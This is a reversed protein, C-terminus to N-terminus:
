EPHDAAAGGTNLTDDSRRTPWLALGSVVVLATLSVAIGPRLGPSRYRLTVSRDGPAVLVGLFARDVAVVDAREGDIHASWGPAYRQDLVVLRPAALDAPVAVRLEGPHPSAVELAEPACARTCALGDVIAPDDVAVADAPLATLQDAVAGRDESVPVARAVLRAAGVWRPNEYLAITGDVAVPGDWGPVLDGVHRGETEVLAWRVGLRAAVDLDLPAALQARITLDENFPRGTLAAVADVWRETVQVGGDYGDVTARGTLVNANPRLGAILYAPDGFRDDTLALTYGPGEPVLVDAADALATIPEEAQLQRSMSHRQMTGLELALVVVVALVAWWGRRDPAAEDATPPAAAWAGVIVVILAVIWAAWTGRSTPATFPGLHAVLLAAAGIAGAAAIRRREVERRAIRDVATAALLAVPIALVLLWRAPTRAQSFGPLHDFLARYASTRPGLSLVVAVIAATALLATTAVARRRDPTLSVVATLALFGAVAGVFGLPETGGATAAHSTSTVDGLLVLPLRDADVSFGPTAVTEIDAGSSRAAEGLAGVVPLLQAAALGLGLGAAAVLHPLRDYRHADVVRGLCWVAILPAALYAQQPHGAVALLAATAAAAAVARRPRDSSVVLDTAVMVWPIWAIVGLQEFQVARAMVLGSGLLATTGAAAAVPVLDLRRRLLVWTGSGLIALHAASALMLARHVDFRSVLWMAPYMVSTQPNGLHDVGGFVLDNWQPLRWARLAEFTVAANPGTYAVTDFSTVWRDPRLFPAAVYLGFVVAGVVAPSLRRLAPRSTM